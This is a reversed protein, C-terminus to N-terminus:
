GDRAPTRALPFRQDTGRDRAAAPRTEEDCIRWGHSCPSAIIHGGAIRSYWSDMPVTAFTRAQQLSAFIGLPHHMRAVTVLFAVVFLAAVFAAIRTSRQRGRRIAISGLVVYVVLLVVKMTLWGNVFPYQRIVSTLMLASTLLVTDVVHPLIRLVRGQLLPSGIVMLLGRFVFLNITLIACAIHITRLEPYFETM